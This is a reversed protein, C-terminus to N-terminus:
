NNTLLNDMNKLFITIFYLYFKVIPPDNISKFLIDLSFIIPVAYPLHNGIDTFVQYTTRKARLPSFCAQSYM